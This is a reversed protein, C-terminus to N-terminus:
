ALARLTLEANPRHHALCFPTRSVLTTANPAPLFPNTDFTSNDGATLKFFYQTNEALGQVTHETLNIYDTPPPRDWERTLGMVVGAAAAGGDCMYVYVFVCVYM